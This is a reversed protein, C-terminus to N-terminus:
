EKSGITVTFEMDEYNDDSLRKGRFVIETGPTLQALTGSLGEMTLVKQGDIETIVDGGMMGAAFAPSDATVGVIYVGEPIGHQESVAETITSGKVGLYAVAQGNSLQEIIGKIDSIGYGTLAGAEGTGDALFGIVEGQLNSIVGTAGSHGSVDCVFQGIVRDDITGTTKKSSIIGYAVGQESGFLNGAIIVPDGPKVSYSNGLAAVQYRGKESDELEETSVAIVALGTNEDKKRLTGALSAGGPLDVRIRSTGSLVTSPALVMLQGGTESIIIGSARRTSEYAAQFWDEDETVGVVTVVSKGVNDAQLALAQFMEQYEAETLPEPEAPEPPLEAPEAPEPQEEPTEPEGTEEPEEPIEDKPIVIEEEPHLQEEIWPRVGTFVAAAVAGFLVASLVLRLLYKGARGAAGTRKVQEQMFTYDDQEPTEPVTEQSHEENEM